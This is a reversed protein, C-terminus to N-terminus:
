SEGRLVGMATEVEALAERRAVNVAEDPRLRHGAPCIATNTLAVETWSSATTTASASSITGDAANKFPVLLTVVVTLGAARLVDALDTLFRGAM